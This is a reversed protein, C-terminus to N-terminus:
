PLFIVAGVALVVTGAGLIGLQFRRGVTPWFTPALVATALLAVGVVMMAPPLLRIRSLNRRLKQRAPVRPRQEAGRDGSM